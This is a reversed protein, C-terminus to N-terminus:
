GAGQPLSGRESLSKLSPAHAERAAIALKGDLRLHSVPNAPLNRRAGGGRTGKSSSHCNTM